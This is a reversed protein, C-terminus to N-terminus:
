ATEVNLSSRVTGNTRLKRLAWHSLRCRFPPHDTDDPIAIFRPKRPEFDAPIQFQRVLVNKGRLVFAIPQELTIVSEPVFNTKGNRQAAAEGRQAHCKKRWELAYEHTTPSLKDLIRKPCDYHLPGCEEDIFKVYGWGDKTTKLLAVCATVRGTDARKYAIYFTHGRQAYDVISVGEAPRGMELVFELKSQHLGMQSGHWGMIDGTFTTETEMSM